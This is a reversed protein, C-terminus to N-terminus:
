NYRRSNVDGITIFTSAMVNQDQMLKLDRKTFLATQVVQLFNLRLNICLISYNYLRLSVLCEWTAMSTLKYIQTECTCRTFCTYYIFIRCYLKRPISIFTLLLQGCQRVAVIIFCSNFLVYATHLVFRLRHLIKLLIIDFMM